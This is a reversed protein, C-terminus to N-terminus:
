LFYVPEKRAQCTRSLQLAINMIMDSSIKRAHQPCVKICGNCVICKERDISASNEPDIAGVPCHQACAGCQVCSDDVAIFEIGSLRKRSEQMDKYPDNGPVTIAAVHGISQLASIKEKIKRGFSMACSLDDADPRGPAIPTEVGSFSHEGIFAGCAVPLCGAKVATDRLELLADDYERNGYMVVCVAPTNHAKITRFWEIADTQVRGFYVPAGILLLEDGSAQLQRNRGEPTTIDVIEAAMHDIGQAIAEVIRKTTGTPSFYVFKLSRIEM